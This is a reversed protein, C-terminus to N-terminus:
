VGGREFVYQVCWTATLVSVKPSSLGNVGTGTGTGIGVGTGRGQAGHRHGAHLVRVDERQRPEGEREVVKHVLILDVGELAEHLGRQLAGLYARPAGAPVGRPIGVPVGRTMGV